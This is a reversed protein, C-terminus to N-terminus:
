KNREKKEKKTLKKVWSDQSNSKYGNYGEEHKSSTWSSESSM